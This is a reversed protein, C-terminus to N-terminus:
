CLVVIVDNKDTIKLNEVFFKTQIYYELRLHIVQLQFNKKILHITLDKM